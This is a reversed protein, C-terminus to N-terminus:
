VLRRELDAMDALWKKADDSEAWLEQLESGQVIRKVAKAALTTLAKADLRHDSQLWTKLDDPLNAAPRGNLAAVIEAAAIAESCDPAELEDEADLTTVLELTDRLMEITPAEAFDILWDLADDNAFSDTAWAGM